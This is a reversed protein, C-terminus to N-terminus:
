SEEKSKRTIGLAMLIPEKRSSEPMLKILMLLWLHMTLQDLYTNNILMRVRCQQYICCSYFLFFFSLCQVGPDM